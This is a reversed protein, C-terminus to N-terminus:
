KLHHRILSARVDFRLATVLEGCQTEILHYLAAAIGRRRDAEGYDLADSIRGQPRKPKALAIKLVPWNPLQGGYVLPEVQHFPDSSQAL